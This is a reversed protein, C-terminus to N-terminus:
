HFPKQTNQKIEIRIDSIVKKKIDTLDMFEFWFKKKLQVWCENLSNVCYEYKKENSFSSDKTSPILSNSYLFSINRKWWRTM